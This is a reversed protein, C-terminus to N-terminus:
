RAEKMRRVKDIPSKRSVEITSVQVDEQKLAQTLSGVSSQLDQRLRDSGTNLQMAIDGGREQIRITIQSDADGVEMAVTRVVPPRPINPIEVPHPAQVQDLREVPRILDNMQVTPTTANSDSTAAPSDPKNREAPKADAAVKQVAIVRLPLQQQQVNAITDTTITAPKASEALAPPAQPQQNPANVASKAPQPQVTYEFKRVEAFARELEPQPGSVLITARPATTTTDAFKGPEADNGDPKAATTAVAAPAFPITTVSIVISNESAAPKDPTKPSDKAKPDATALQGLKASAQPLDPENPLDPSNSLSLTFSPVDTAASMPPASPTEVGAGDTTTPLKAAFNGADASAPHRMSPRAWWPSAELVAGPHHQDLFENGQVFRGAKVLAPFQEGQLNGIDQSRGGVANQPPLNNGSGTLETLCANFDQTPLVSFSSSAAPGNGLLPLLSFIDAPNLTAAAANLDM